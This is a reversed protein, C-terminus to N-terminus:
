GLSLNGSPERKGLVEYLGRVDGNVDVLIEATSEVLVGISRINEGIFVVRLSANGTGLCIHIDVEIGNGNPISSM